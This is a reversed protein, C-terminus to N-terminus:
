CHFSCFFISAFSSFSFIGFLSKDDFCYLSIKSVNYTGIKHLKSQIKKMKDRIIKENFLVDIYEKHRINKAVKKDVGKVKILEIFSHM